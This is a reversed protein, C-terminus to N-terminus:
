GEHVDEDEKRNWNGSRGGSKELLRVCEITMGRAASKCMDYVTLAAVTVATLAEMEVGTKGTCRATAVLRLRANHWEAEIDIFDLGVPHCMPILESTRKGAMIGAIRATEIVNGKSITGTSKLRTAVETGTHILAEARAERLSPEKAGVDVM